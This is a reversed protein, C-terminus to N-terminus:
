ANKAAENIEQILANLEHLTKVAKIKELYNSDITNGIITRRTQLYLQKYWNFTQTSLTGLCSIIFDGLPDDQNINNIDRTQIDYEQFYKEDDNSEFKTKPTPLGKKFDNNTTYVNSIETTNKNIKNTEKPMTNNNDSFSSNSNGLEESSSNTFISSKNNGGNDISKPQDTPTEIKECDDQPSTLQNRNKTNSTKRWAKQFKKITNNVIYNKVDERYNLLEDNIMRKLENDIPLTIETNEINNIYNNNNFKTLIEDIENNDTKSFMCNILNIQSEKTVENNNNKQQRLFNLINITNIEQRFKENITTIEKDITSIQKDSTDLNELDRLISISKNKNIINDIPNNEEYIKIKSGYNYKRLTSMVKAKSESDPLSKLMNLYSFVLLHRFTENENHSYLTDNNIKEQMSDYLKKDEQGLKEVNIYKSIVDLHQQRLNNIKKNENNILNTYYEIRSKSLKKLNITKPTKESDSFSSNFDLDNEKSEENDNDNNLTENNHDTNLKQNLYEHALNSLNPMKNEYLRNIENNYNLRKRLSNINSSLLTKIKNLNNNNIISNRVSLINKKIEEEEEKVIENLTTKNDFQNTILYDIDNKITEDDLELIQYLVTNFKIYKNKNENITMINNHNKEIKTILQTITDLDKKASEIKETNNKDIKAMETYMNSLLDYMMTNKNNSNVHMYDNFNETKITDILSTNLTKNDETIYKSAIIACTQRDFFIQKSLDKTTKKFRNINKHNSTDLNLAADLEKLKKRNYERFVNQIRIASNTRNKENENEKLEENDNDSSNNTHTLEEPKVYPHKINSDDQTYQNLTTKTQLKGYDVTFDDQAQFKNQITEPTNVPQNTKEKNALIEDFIKSSKEVDAKSIKQTSKNKDYETYGSLDISINFQKKDDEKKEKISSVDDSNDNNTNLSASSLDVNNEQSSSSSSIVSINDDDLSKIKQNNLNEKTLNSNATSTETYGSIDVSVSSDPEKNNCNNYNDNINLSQNQSRESFFKKIKERNENFNTNKSIKDNAFINVSSANILLLSLLLFKKINKM